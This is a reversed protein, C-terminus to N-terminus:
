GTIAIDLHWVQEGNGEIVPLKGHLEAIDLRDYAGTCPEPAACYMDYGGYGGEDTWVGLYAVTDVPATLTVTTGDLYILESRNQELKDLVYYKNFTKGTRQLKSLDRGSRCIPWPHIAGYGGLSIPDNSTNMIETGGPLALSMGDELIFLPHAAWLAKLPFPSLNKAKYDLRIGGEYLSVTKHLRYPLRVGHVSLQIREGVPEGEWDLTWVEGHDPLPTGDWVGGPYAGAAINPFMDDFGSFEGTEFVDGYQAFRFDKGDRQWLLERGRHKISQLKAGRRLVTVELTGAKLVWGPANKYFVETM